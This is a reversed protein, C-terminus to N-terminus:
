KKTAKKKKKKFVSAVAPETAGASPPEGAAAAPAAEDMAEASEEEDPAPPPTPTPEPTAVPTATPPAPPAATGADEEAVAQESTEEEAAAGDDKGKGSKKAAKKAERAAKAAAKKEEKTMKKEYLGGTVPGVPEATAAGGGDGRPRSSPPSDGPNFSDPILAAIGAAGGSWGLMPSDCLMGESTTGGVARRTVKVGEVESGVTAVCVLKGITREAINTANTVVTVPAEAGVDISCVKLKGGDDVSLVKGVLYGEPM